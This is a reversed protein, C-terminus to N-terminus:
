AAGHHYYNRLCFNRFNPFPPLSAFKTPTHNTPIAYQYCAASSVVNHHGSVTLVRYIMVFKDGGGGLNCVLYFFFFFFQVPM